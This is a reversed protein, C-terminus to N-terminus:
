FVISRHIVSSRQLFRGLIGTLPVLVFVRLQPHVKSSATQQEPVPIRSFPIMAFCRLSAVQVKEAEGTM